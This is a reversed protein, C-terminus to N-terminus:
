AKIEPSKGSASKDGADAVNGAANHTPVEKVTKEPMKKTADDRAVSFKNFSM